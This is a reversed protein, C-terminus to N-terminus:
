PAKDYILTTYDFPADIQKTAYMYDAFAKVAPRSISAKYGPLANKMAATMLAESNPLDFNFYSHAINVTEDFNAPNQIFGEAEKVANIFAEVVHPKQDIDEQRFTALVAAGNTAAIEQPEPSDSGRWILRCTKLVECLTGAPEINMIADVQGSILAGYATNGAGIAVFSVDDSTLGAKQLLFVFELEAAAGRAPVGIKKGRLDQMIAPYGNGANPAALENRIVIMFVNLVSVGAVAKMKAGKIMALIQQDPGLTAVDINKALFAQVGLPGSLFMQVECKIGHKDCYGKSIAVRALMNGIAPVDQIRLTEGKGQALAVASATGLVVLGVIAGLINREMEM